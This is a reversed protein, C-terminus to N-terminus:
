GDLVILGGVNVLSRSIDRLVLLDQAHAQRAMEMKAKGALMM